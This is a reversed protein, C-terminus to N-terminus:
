ISVEDFIIELDDGYKERMEPLKSRRFIACQKCGKFPEDTPVMAMVDPDIKNVMHKAKFWQRIRKNM